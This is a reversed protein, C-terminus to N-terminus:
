HAGFPPKSTFDLSMTCTLGEPEFRLEVPYGLEHALGRNLVRLGFGQRDPVATPPGGREEWLISCVDQCQWSLAVRGNGNSLSGHRIANTLLENFAMSLALAQKPNIRIPAGRLSVRGDEVWAALVTQAIDSLNVSQWAERTLLDHAKALVLLRTNLAQAFAEPSDSSKLTQEALSSVTALTNKVRHNLEGVLLKQRKEAKREETRDRFIKLYRDPGSEEVPLMVGSGWFRSGDKRYHWRENAARGREGAILMEQQPVNSVRDEPSFFIGGSLGLVESDRYGLLREAGSNWSAICGAADLTIIAYESASDLIARLRENTRRLGEEARQRAEESRQREISFGLQRAITLCLVAEDATFVHAIERYAMFKGIVIGDITLPIFALARIGEDTIIDKLAQPEDALEIDSVFIPVADRDGPKWPSHGDVARRYGESLGRSAVFRMVGQHDFLLISARSCGLAREIADFTADFVDTSTEARYLGDTLQFLAELEDAKRIWSKDAVTDRQSM